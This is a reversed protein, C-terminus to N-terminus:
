IQSQPTAFLQKNKTVKWCWIKIVRKGILFLSNLNFTDKFCNTKYLLRAELLFWIIKEWTTDMPFFILTEPPDLCAEVM